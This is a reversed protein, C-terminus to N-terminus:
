PLNDDSLMPDDNTNQDDMFLAENDTANRTWGPPPKGPMGGISAPATAAVSGDGVPADPADDHLTTCGSLAFCATAVAIAAICASTAHQNTFSSM